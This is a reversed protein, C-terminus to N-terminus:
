GTKSLKAQNCLHSIEKEIKSFADRLPSPITQIPECIAAMGPRLIRLYVKTYFLSAQLGFTTVTYRNTAPIRAILGKLRLRRLDYSMKGQTDEDPSIGLLSAVNERM